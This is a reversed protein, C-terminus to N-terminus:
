VSLPLGGERQIKTLVLKGEVIKAELLKTRKGQIVSYIGPEPNLARIKRLVEVAGEGNKAKELLENTILGDESTFKKTYTAGSEDQVIAESKGIVFKPLIELLLEVGLDALRREFEVYNDEGLSVERQAIVSGHDVEEDLMFLSVGTTEAGDLIATQIPTAGRFSPLLSPHVGMIGLRAKDIVSRPIIQAYAAVIGFDCDKFIEDSVLSLEAKDKPQFVKIGLENNKIGLEQILKKTPPSTVIKKRGVPRDPNCVLVVPSVGAAILKELVRAAFNPTGFFVYRLPKLNYIKPELSM